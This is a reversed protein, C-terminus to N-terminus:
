QGTVQPKPVMAKEKVYSYAANLQAKLQQPTSIKQNMLNQFHELMESSGRAGVHAQMLATSLLGMHTNLAAFDPDDGLKGAMFNNWRSAVNGLKGQSDLAAIDNKVDLFLGNPAILQRATIVKKQTDADLKTVGQAGASQLDSSTGAVQAGDPATGVYMNTDAKQPKNSAANDQAALKAPLQANAVAGAQAAKDQAAKAVAAQERKDTIGQLNTLHDIDSQVAKITNPDANPQEKYKALQETMNDVRSQLDNAHMPNGAPDYGNSMNRLVDYLNDKVIGNPVSPLAYFQARSNYDKTRAQAQDASNKNPIYWGKPGPITLDPVSVSGNQAMQGGMQALAAKGGADNPVFTYTMGTQDTMRKAQADANAQVADQHDQDAWQMRIDENHLQAARVSDNFSQFKIAQQNAQDAQEARAGEGLGQIFGPRGRDPVGALATSGVNSVAALIAQLRSGGGGNNQPGSLADSTANEESPDYTPITPPAPSLASALNSQPMTVDPASM